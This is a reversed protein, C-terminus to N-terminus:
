EARRARVGRDANSEAAGARSASAVPKAQLRQAPWQAEEHEDRGRRSESRAAPETVSATARAAAVVPQPVQRYPDIAGTYVPPGGVGYIGAPTTGFPRNGTVSAIADDWGTPIAVAVDILTQVPNPFYLWQVSTPQGPNITRDYGTEVLVRLPADWALALPTGILPIAAVPTLLPLITTPAIYYTTDQFYGQLQGPADSFVSTPHLMMMGALANVDALLNLPNLPFDDWGDYQRAIDVTWMPDTRASNTPMPAVTTVGLISGSPFRVLIGGNPRTQNATVVFSITADTVPDAILSAKEVGSIIAGQSGGNVVYDTDLVEALDTDLYPSQTVLCAKGRICDDLNAKGVAVSEDITLDAFGSFPAAQNPGYVAVLTCESRDTGCFGTPAIYQQYQSSLFDRIFAPTAPPISLVQGTGGMVLATASLEVAVSVVNDPEARGASAYPLSGTLSLVSVLAWARRSLM